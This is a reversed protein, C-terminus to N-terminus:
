LIIRSMCSQKQTPLPSGPPPPALPRGGFGHGRISNIQHCECFLPVSGRFSFCLIYGDDTIARINYGQVLVLAYYPYNTYWSKESYPMNNLTAIM